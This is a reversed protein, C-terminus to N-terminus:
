DLRAIFLQYEVPGRFFSLTLSSTRNVSSQFARGSPYFIMAWHSGPLSERLSRYVSNLASGLDAKERFAAIVAHRAFDHYAKINGDIVRDDLDECTLNIPMSFNRYGRLESKLRKNRQMLKGIQAELEQVKGPREEKGTSNFRVRNASEARGRSETLLQELKNFRVTISSDLETIRDSGGVDISGISASELGKATAAGVDVGHKALLQELRANDAKLCNNKLM